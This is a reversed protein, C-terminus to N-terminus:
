AEAGRAHLQQWEYRIDRGFFPSMMPYAKEPERGGRSLTTIWHRASEEIAVRTQNPRRPRHGFWQLVLCAWCGDGATCGAETLALLVAPWDEGWLYTMFRAVEALAGTQEPTIQQELKTLRSGLAM